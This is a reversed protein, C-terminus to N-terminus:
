EITFQIMKRYKVPTGKLTAPQYKWRMAQDELAKDYTTATRARLVASEVAGKEDILVEIAGRRQTSALMAPPPGTWRPLRQDIVVPPIVDKDDAGYFPRARPPPPPLAEAIAPQAVAPAAPAAPMASRALDRFGLVLTRLDNMAAEQPGASADPAGILTLVADFQEIASWYQKSDFAAKAAAYRQQIIGPLVKRRVERFAAQVRPSTTVPDPEFSANASIVAEIAREADGQRGLALLCMARVQELQRGDAAPEHAKIRDLVALAEEYAASGYLSRASALTDGAQAGALPVGALVLFVVAAAFTIRTTM